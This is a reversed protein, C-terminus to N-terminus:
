YETMYQGAAPLQVAPLVNLQLYRIPYCIYKYQVICLLAQLIVHAFVAQVTSLLTSYVAKQYVCDGILKELAHKM